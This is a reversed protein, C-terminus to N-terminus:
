EDGIIWVHVEGPGHVGAVLIGAIDGSHSPGSVFTVCAPMGATISQEHLAAIVPALTPRLGSLPLLFGVAQPLLSWTRGYEAVHRLVVSGTEAIGWGAESLGFDAAKPDPTWSDDIQTWRLGPPCALSSWGRAAMTTVIAAQAARRTPVLTATGGLERLREGFIRALADLSMSPGVATRAAPPTVLPVPEHEGCGTRLRQAVHAIFRERDM